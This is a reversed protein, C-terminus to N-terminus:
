QFVIRIACGIVHMCNKSINLSTPSLTKRYTNLSEPSSTGVFKNACVYKYVIFSQLHFPLPDKYFFKNSSRFPTFVVKVDIGKCFTEVLKQIKKLAINSHKGIYPLKFFWTDTKVETNNELPRKDLKLNLYKKTVKNILKTPFQNKNLIKALNELDKDFGIWTNNIKYCRDLM